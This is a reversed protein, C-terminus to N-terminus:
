RPTTHQLAAAQQACPLFSSDEPNHSEGSLSLAALMSMLDTMLKAPLLLPRPLPLLFLLLRAAAKDAALVAATVAASAPTVTAAPTSSKKRSSQNSLSRLLMHHTPVLLRTAMAANAYMLRTRDAGLHCQRRRVQGALGFNSDHQVKM